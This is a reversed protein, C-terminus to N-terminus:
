QEEKIMIKFETSGANLNEDIATIRISIDGTDKPIGTFSLNSNNFKLWEPLNDENCLSAKYKLKDGNVNKFTNNPLTFKYQKTVYIITDSIPRYIYPKFIKKTSAWFIDSESIDHHNNLFLRTFFLYKKDPSIFPAIELQTTNVSSDLREPKGWTNDFMFYSMYLDYKYKEEQFTQIIIYDGDPSIYLGDEDSPTNINEVKKVTLYEGNIPKSCYIDGCHLHTSDRNSTFYLTRDMTLGHGAERANCSVPSPFRRPVTWGNNIRNCIWIDPKRANSPVRTFTLSLNDPSYMPNMVSDMGIFSAVIPSSWENNSFKMYYISDAKKNNGWVSFVFEKKDTSFSCGLELRNKLSVLGPAFVQPINGPPTQDLYDIPINGTQSYSINSIILIVLTIITKM